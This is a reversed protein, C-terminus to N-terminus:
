HRMLITLDHSQKKPTNLFSSMGFIEIKSVKTEKILVGFILLSNLSNFIKYIEKLVDDNCQLVYVLM